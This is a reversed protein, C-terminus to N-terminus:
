RTCIRRGFQDNGTQTLGPRCVCENTTSDPRTGKGCFWACRGDAEVLHYPLPCCLTPPRQSAAPSTSRVRSSSSARCGTVPKSPQPKAVKIPKATCIRRGSPDKGTQVFGTRCVCEKTVPDPRTGKACSWVCRGDSSLNWYPRKCSAAVADPCNSKVQPRPAPNPLLASAVLPAPPEDIQSIELRACIRRGLDDFGTELYGPLCVCEKRAPAPETGKACAWRCFGNSGPTQYPAQCTSPPPASPCGVLFAVLACVTLQVSLSVNPRTM